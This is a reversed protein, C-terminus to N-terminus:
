IMKCINKAIFTLNYSSLIPKRDFIQAKVYCKGVCLFYKAYLEQVLRRIILPWYLNYIYFFTRSEWACYLKQVLNKIILAWYRKETLKNKIIFILNVYWKCCFIRYGGYEFDTKLISEYFLNWHSYCKM